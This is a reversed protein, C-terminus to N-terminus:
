WAARSARLAVPRPSLLACCAASFSMRATHRPNIGPLFALRIFTPKLGQPRNRACKAGGLGSKKTARSARNSVNRGLPRPHLRFVGAGAPIKGCAAKGPCNLCQFRDIPPGIGQAWPPEYSNWYAYTAVKLIREPKAKRNFALLGFIPISVSCWRFFQGPATRMAKSRSRTETM